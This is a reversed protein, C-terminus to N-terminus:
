SEHIEHEGEIFADVAIYDGRAYDSNKWWWKLDNKRECIKVKLKAV